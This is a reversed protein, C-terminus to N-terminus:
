SGATARCARHPACRGSRVASPGCRRGARGPRCRAHPAPRRGGTRRRRECGAWAGPGPPPPMLWRRAAGLHSAGGRPPAAPAQPEMFRDVGAHQEGTGAAADALRHGLGQAPGTGLDHAHAATFAPGGAHGPMAGIQVIRVTRGANGLGCGVPAGVDHHLGGADGAESRQGRDRGQLHLLHQLGVQQRRHKQRLRQQRMQQALRARLHHEDARRQAADPQRAEAHVAGALRPQMAKGLRQAALQGVGLHAHLDEARAAGAGAEVAGRDLGVVLGGARRHVRGLDHGVRQQRQDLALGGFGEDAVGLAQAHAQVAQEARAHVAAEGLVSAAKDFRWILGCGRSGSM